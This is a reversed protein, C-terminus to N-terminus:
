FWLHTQALFDWRDKTSSTRSFNRTNYLDFKLEVKSIPFIQLSPGFRVKYSKDSSKKYYEINNILYVGRNFKIHNQFLSYYEKNKSGIIPAFKDSRGFEFLLSAGDGFGSRLHVAYSQNELFDNKQSLLSFGLRNKEFITAEFISSAGVARLNSAQALNGVFPNLAFEYSEGSIHLLLGHAQDNMTLQTTTRSYATHEAVRIGFAKDMLGAYIGFQSNIKWGLYHERSRYKEIDNAQSTNQQARPIPAYGFTFSSLFQDRQGFKLVVNADAQMHIFENQENNEGFNRKLFLGRYMVSPRFFKNKAEKFFFGSEKAILEEPKSNNYFGRSSILTAGVARGYDNIPGNGLPNYHCTQCSNYGHGIFNPYAQVNDIFILLFFLVFFTKM